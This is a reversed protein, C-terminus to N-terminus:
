LDALAAMRDLALGRCWMWFAGFGLLSVTPAVLRGVHPLSSLLGLLLLGILLPLTRAAAGSLEAGRLLREGVTSGVIVPAVVGVMAAVVITVLGAAVLGLGLAPWLLSWLGAVGLVLGIVGTLLVVLLGSAIVGVAAIAGQRLVGLPSHELELRLRRPWEPVLRILLMGALMLVAVRRAQRGLDVRSAQAAAGDTPTGEDAHVSGAISGAVSGPLAVESAEVVANGGIDGALRAQYGALLLDGDIRSGTEAVFGFGGALVADGVRAESNLTLMWGAARLDDGVTGNIIVSGGCATLDGGVTGNLTILAGHAMVDGTVTGDIVITTGLVYLDGEIVEGARVVVTDGIRHELAVVPNPTLTMLVAAAGQVLSRLAGRRLGQRIKDASM